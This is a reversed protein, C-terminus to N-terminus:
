SSAKIKLSAPKDSFLLSAWKQIFTGGHAIDKQASSEMEMEFDLSAFIGSVQYFVAGAAKVKSGAFLFDRPICFSYRYAFFLTVSEMKLYIQWGFFNLGQIWISCM